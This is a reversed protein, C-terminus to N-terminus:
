AKKHLNAMKKIRVTYFHLLQRQECHNINWLTAIVADGSLDSRQENKVMRDNREIMSFM